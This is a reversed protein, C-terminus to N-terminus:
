KIKNQSDSEIIINSGNYNEAKINSKIQQMQKVRQAISKLFEAEEYTIIINVKNDEVESMLEDISIKYLSALKQIIFIDPLTQLNEYRSYTTQGINLFKAIEEQSYNNIKRLNIIKENFKM